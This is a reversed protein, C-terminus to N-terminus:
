GNKAHNDLIEQIFKWAMEEMPRYGKSESPLLWNDLRRLKVGIRAALEERTLGLVAMADRLFDQQAITKKTM